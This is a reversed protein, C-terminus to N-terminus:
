VDGVLKRVAAVLMHEKFPKVIWGKAGTQKAQQVMELDAETTVMVIPMKLAPHDTRMASLLQIGNLNPMNVDCLVLSADPHENIKLLGDHGDVAEIVEYGAACLANTVIQRATRSDDIVVIKKKVNKTM